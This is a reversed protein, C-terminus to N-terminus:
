HHSTTTTTGGGGGGGGGLALAAGGVVAAGGAIIGVTGMSLGAGVSLGTTTGVQAATLASAVTTYGAENLASILKAKDAVIHGIINGESDIVPLAVETELHGPAVAGEWYGGNANGAIEKAKSVSSIKETVIDDASVQPVYAANFILFSVIVLSAMAKKM